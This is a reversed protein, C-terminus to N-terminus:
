RADDGERQARWWRGVEAMGEEVSRPMFGLDRRAARDDFRAGLPVPLPWVRGRDLARALARVARWVPVSAGTTNYARGATSPREAAVVAARAIDAAHAHPVRVTPAVGREIMALYRATIKRDRPGYIPGPRLATLRVGTTAAAQWAGREARAKSEAYGPDTTFRSWDFAPHDPDRRPGAEDLRRWLSTRYVAVSSIYVVRECGVAAAQEVQHRAGRVNAVAYAEATGGATGPALAANAVVADAGAFARALSAPDGLDGHRWAVGARAPQAEPRRCVGLVEHGRALAQDVLHSGLFGNAGTIALRM